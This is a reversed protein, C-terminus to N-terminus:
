FPWIKMLFRALWGPRQSDVMYGKGNYEVYMDAVKSSPVSNDPEIDSPRVIGSIKLVQVDDNIKIIKEGVIYLNGNPYVKVVRATITAILKANRQTSNKGKFNAKPSTSFALLPDKTKKPVQKGLITPRNVSIDFSTQKDTTTSSSGSGSLTEYIKVTLTDGVNHAKADSFLNDYGTFLSGPSQPKAEVAPPPPPPVVVAGSRESDGACSYFLFSSILSVFICGYKSWCSQM